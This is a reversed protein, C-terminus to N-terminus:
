ADAPLAPGGAAAVHWECFLSPSCAAALVSAAAERVRRCPSLVAACMCRASPSCSELRRTPDDMVVRATAAARGVIGDLRAARAYSALTAAPARFAVMARVALSRSVRRHTLEGLATFSDLAAIAGCPRTVRELSRSVCGGWGDVLAATVAAAARASSARFLAGFPNRPTWRPVGGNTVRLRRADFPEGAHHGFQGSSPRL